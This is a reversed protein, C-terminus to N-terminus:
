KSLQKLGYKFMQEDCIYMELEEHWQIYAKNNQMWQIIPANEINHYIGIFKKNIFYDGCSIETTNKIPSCSM